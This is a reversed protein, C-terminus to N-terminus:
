PQMNGYASCDTASPRERHSWGDIRVDAACCLIEEFRWMAQTSATAQQIGRPQCM